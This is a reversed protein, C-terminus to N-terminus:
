PVAIVKAIKNQQGKTDTVTLTVTFSGAAAWTNRTTNVPKTESGGNGWDWKYSVIGVDDTSGSADFACQHPHIQGVCTSAFRAVPPQDTPAVSGLTITKTVSNSLGGADKVTLTVNRTGTHPYTTTVKSGTASGGPYKNLDWTYSVVGADDTSSTADFTCTLTACSWTFKAVPPKNAPPSGGGIFSVNVLRNPSGSGPSTVKNSVAGGIIASAVAAPTASPNGALYLAAVGAVHPSAMSTGSLVATQVDSGNYASTISEGPAFLDVCKGFNSFSARADDSTTAGVTIAQPTRAPSQVCADTSANGAAVAYTVGSAISAQVAQDLAASGAGELSMNAVAPSAHNATVYDVGAIVGSVPGSGGCDLVRVAHLKVAKAVGYTTGGLTGAVHTGHGNCDSTGNGDTVSTFVGNARGGFERHTTRIGSDIIYAHVGSGTANYTYRADLPLSAQDLRDLGWTANSQTTVARVTQDPEILAIDPHYKLTSIAAPSLTAAFGHLAHAYTFELKGGHAAVMAKARAPADSVHGQFVVIYHGARPVGSISRLAGAPALSSEIPESPPTPDESCAVVITLAGLTILTRRITVM